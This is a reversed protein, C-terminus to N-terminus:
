RAGTKVIVVKITKILIVIDMWLSWNQIYWVDLKRRQAFSLDSRGSVQWLGTIGPKVRTILELDNGLKKLENLMYPRPGILNMEGKLINIIQPLEDLSTKRLIKGVKTIRPDNKYKHYKEYYIIEDPHQQLYKKLLEDSNPLMTRYKYCNFVKKDKGFRKQRFFVGGKSDLNILFIIVIHLLIFLPLILLILLKEFLEKIIRNEFKLLNNEIKILTTKINFLELIKSQSFNISNLYPIIYIDKVFKSYRRLYIDVRKISLDKSAIFIIDPKKKVTKFGLYWNKQFENNLIKAQEKNGVIKVRKRLIPIKFIIKKLVRKYPPLFLMLGGFYILMFARSYEQSTKTFVLISMVIVFSFFLAKLILKTEEWFDYRLTYIKEFFLTFMIIIFYTFFDKVPYPDFYTDLLNVKARIYLSFYYFYIIFVFDLIFFLLSVLRNKM